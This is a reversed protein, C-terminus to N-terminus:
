IYNINIALRVATDTQYAGRHRINESWIGISNAICPIKEGTEFETWGDNTNVYYLATSHVTGPQDVHWHAFQRIGNKTNMNVQARFLTKPQLRNVLPKLLIDIYKSDTLNGGRKWDYLVHGMIFKEEGAVEYAVTGRFYYPFKQDYLTRQIETFSTNDLYNTHQQIM